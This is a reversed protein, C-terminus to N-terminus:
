RAPNADAWKCGGCKGRCSGVLAKFDRIVNPQDFRGLEPELRTWDVVAGAHALEPTEHMRYRNIVRKPDLGVYQHFPCQLTRLGPALAVPWGRSQRTKVIVTVRAM